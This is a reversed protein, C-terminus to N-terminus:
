HSTRPKSQKKKLDSCRHSRLSASAWSGVQSALSCAAQMRMTWSGLVCARWPLSTLVLLFREKSSVSSWLLALSLGVSLVMLIGFGEGSGGVWSNQYGPSPFTMRILVVCHPKLQPFHSSGKEKRGGGRERRKLVCMCNERGENLCVVGEM